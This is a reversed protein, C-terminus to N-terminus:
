SILIWMIYGRIEYCSGEVQTIFYSSGNLDLYFLNGKIQKKSGVLNGKGDLLKVNGNMLEVNFEIKNLQAVSLINHKWGEVWYANDYRLDNTLSICFKGKIYCPKNNAFTVSGGDYHEMHEFKTKDGLIIHTAVILLGHIMKELM